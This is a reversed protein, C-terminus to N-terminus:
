YSKKLSSIDGINTNPELFYGILKVITEVYATFNMIQKTKVQDSNLLSDLKALDDKNIVPKSSSTM